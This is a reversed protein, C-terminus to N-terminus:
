LYDSKNEFFRVRDILNSDVLSFYSSENMSRLMLILYLNDLLRKLLQCQVDKTLLMIFNWVGVSLESMVLEDDIKLM